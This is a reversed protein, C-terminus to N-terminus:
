PLVRNGADLWALIEEAQWRGCNPQRLLTILATERDEAMMTALAELGPPFERLVKISRMRLGVESETRVILARQHIASARSASVGFVDGIAQYTAGGARMELAIRHREGLMAIEEPSSQAAENSSGAVFGSRSAFELRSSFFAHDVRFSVTSGPPQPYIPWLGYAM